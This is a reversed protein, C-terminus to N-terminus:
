CTGVGVSDLARQQALRLSCLDDGVCAMASVVNSSRLVVNTDNAAATSGLVIINRACM